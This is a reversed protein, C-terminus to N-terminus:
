TRLYLIIRPYYFTTLTIEGHDVIARVLPVENKAELVTVKPDHGFETPLM